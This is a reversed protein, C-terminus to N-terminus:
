EGIRVADPEIRVPAIAMDFPARAALARSPDYHRMIWDVLPGPVPVGGVAVGDSVLVFPRDPAPELRVRAHVDPGRQPLELTITGPGLRVRAQRFAKQGRLFTLLDDAAVTVRELRVRSVDLPDLRREAVASLPNVLVDEFVLRLDRVRLPTRDRRFDGVTAAAARIEVRRLRGALIERDYGLRVELGVVDRAVPALGGLVAAEVAEAVAAPPLAVEPIRRARVTATSGDPLPFEALVPYVRALHPDGALREAVRRPREATFAPGVDGTKLVMYDVGVPAEDWARAVHIRRGDRTSYYRFNSPSFFPHNPVVSLTVERGAADRAIAALIDRQPWRATYPPEGVALPVGAVTLRAAPPTGFAATSVQVVA